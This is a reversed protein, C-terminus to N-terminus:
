LSVKQVQARRYFHCQTFSSLDSGLVNGVHLWLAHNGKNACLWNDKGFCIREHRDFLLSQLLMYSMSFKEVTIASFESKTIIKPLAPTPTPPFVCRERNQFHEAMKAFYEHMCKFHSGRGKKLQRLSSMIHEFGFVNAQCQSIVNDPMANHLCRTLYSWWTFLEFLNGLDSGVIGTCILLILCDDAPSIWLTGPVM